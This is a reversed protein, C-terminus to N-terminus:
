SPKCVGCITCNTIPCPPSTKSKLARKYEHELFSKNIGHEIFDWPFMESFPREKHVYFDTNLTSKKYIDMWNWNNEVAEILLSSVRRDGKSFLAQIYAERPSDANVTMNPVRRLGNKIKNIKKKLISVKEMPAWQFPTFPKPVFPNVSITIHGIRGKERSAELFVEKIEKCFVITEDIDDNTEGPLGVMFYIKLNPIDAKVLRQTATLVHEKTIGKNIVARMRASGADPAITATKVKSKKLVSIHEESLADARLSSFSFRVEENEFGTCIKGIEPHDSIATGVLGIKKSASSGQMFCQQLFKADRFRPPRYVYGASCFRCGHPCGRSVEILWSANFAAEESVVSSFTPVNTLDSLYVRKIKNPVDNTPKFSKLSGDQNYDPKYFEPVYAGPVNQALKLLYAEKDRTLDLHKFFPEFLSEGEGILFCDIFDAIPEPNLFCAVGGAILLPHSGGRAYSQLPFGSNQIITLMNPFDNEFSISFAVIDFDALSKQSEITKVPEIKHAKDGSNREPLFARECVVDDFNNLLQYISLFGLNSMGVSYLNPYVLAISIKGTWSKRITGIESDAYKVAKKSNM